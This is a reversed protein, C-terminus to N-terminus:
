YEEEGLVGDYGHAMFEDLEEVSHNEDSGEIITGDELRTKGCHDRYKEYACADCMRGAYIGYSYQEEAEGRGCRCMRRSM